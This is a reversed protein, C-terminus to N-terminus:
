EGGKEGIKVGKEEALMAWLQWLTVRPVDRGWHERREQFLAARQVGHTHEAPCPGGAAWEDLLRAGDPWASADLRMLHCCLDPSVDGWQAQLVQPVTYQARCLNANGLYAGALNANGLYAYRLNANGLYAYCLNANGLYANRLDANRLYANRLDAGYLHAYRLTDADVVRLVAGTHRHRIEIM